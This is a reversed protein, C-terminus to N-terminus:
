LVFSLLAYERNASAIAALHGPETELDRGFLVADAMAHTCRMESRGSDDFAVRVDKPSVSFGTGVCKLFAEKHVWYRLFAKRQQAVSLRSLSRAEEDTLCEAVLGDLDFARSLDEVDIGLAGDEAVAIQVAKTSHSLNFAVTRPLHSGVEDIRPKGQDGHAFRLDEPACGCYAGLIMRLLARGATFADRHEPFRFRDSRDREDASLLARM